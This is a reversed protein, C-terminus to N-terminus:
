AKKISRMYAAAKQARRKSRYLAQIPPYGPYTFLKIIRWRRRHFRGIAFWGKIKRITVKM